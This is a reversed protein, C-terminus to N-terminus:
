RTGRLSTYLRYASMMAKKRAVTPLYFMALGWLCRLSNKWGKGERLGRVYYAIGGRDDHELFARGISVCCNGLAQTRIVEPVDGQSNKKVVELSNITVQRTDRKLSYAIRYQVLPRALVRVTGRRAFRMWLDWDEVARFLPSEDLMGIAFFDARRVVASSNVVPNGILLDDRYYDRYEAGAPFSLHNVFRVTDGLPSINSGVCAIKPDDLHKLQVELKDREWVDDSDLFALYEGQARRAGENRSKAIVGENSILCSSLRDDGITALVKGTEDTSRNDVVIVELERWTQALASEVAARIYQGTNYSPVIVSVLPKSM